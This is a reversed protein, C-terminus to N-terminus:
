HDNVVGIWGADRTNDDGVWGILKEENEVELQYRQWPNKVLWHSRFHAQRDQAQMM